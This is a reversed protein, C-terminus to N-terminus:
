LDLTDCRNRRRSFPLPTLSSSQRRGRVANTGDIPYRHSLPEQISDLGRLGPSPVGTGLYLVGCQVIPEIVETEPLHPRQEGSM